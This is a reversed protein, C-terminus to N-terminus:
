KTKEKGLIRIRGMVISCSLLQGTQHGQKRLHLQNDTAKMSLCFTSPSEASGKLGAAKAGDGGTGLQAQQSLGQGLDQGMSSAVKYPEMAM